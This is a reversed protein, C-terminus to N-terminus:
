QAGHHKDEGVIGKLDVRLGILDDRRGLIHLHWADGGQLRQPVPNVFIDIDEAGVCAHLHLLPAVGAQDHPLQQPAGCHVLAHRHKIFQLILRKM